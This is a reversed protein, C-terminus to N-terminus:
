KPTGDGDTGKPKLGKVRLVTGEVIKEAEELSEDFFNSLDGVPANHKSIDVILTLCDVSIKKLHDNVKTDVFKPEVFSDLNGIGIFAKQAQESTQPAIVTQSNMGNRKGHIQLLIDDLEGHISKLGDLNLLYSASVLDCMELHLMQLPLQTTIKFNLYKLRTVDMKNLALSFAEKHNSLNNIWPDLGLTQCFFLQFDFHYIYRNETARILYSPGTSQWHPTKIRRLLAEAINPLKKAFGIQPEFQAVM